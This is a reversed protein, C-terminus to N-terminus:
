GKSYPDVFVDDIRWDGASLFRFSVQTSLLNGVVPLVPSPTWAGGTGLVAGVPLEHALGLADRFVATVVLPGSGGGAFFRVTPHALDVCVPATTASAGAPLALASSGPEYPDNAAVVAAGGDLSWGAGGAELAGDPAAEYWAADLWPLFTRALPQPACDARALAPAALLLALAVLPAILAPRTSPRCVVTLPSGRPPGVCVRQITSLAFM